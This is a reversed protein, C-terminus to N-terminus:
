LRERCLIKALCRMMAATAGWIEYNAYFMRWYFRQEEEYFYDQKQYNQRACFFSLPVEFVSEVEGASLKLTQPAALLAVVPRVRFGTITVYSPLEGLIAAEPVVLGIEEAAERCAAASANEDGDIQGGPFSVEGAHEKLHLARRTLLVSVGAERWVLPVLVAAERSAKAYHRPALDGFIAHEPIDALATTLWNATADFDLKPLFKAM